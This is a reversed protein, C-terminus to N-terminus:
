KIQYTKPSDGTFKKFARNFTAKSNFGADYALSMITLHAFEPNSLQAKVEMVRYQNVFDNFNKEFIRNIIKSLFSPNTGLHAALESLTLEPNRYLKEQLMAIELKEKWEPPVVSDNTQIGNVSKESASPENNAVESVENLIPTQREITDNVQYRYFDLEFKKKQEISNAYGTIGIYYFILAFLLYYWWTDQYGIDFGLLRLGDLTITSFFYLFCAILFNRVWTFQLNDAYSLEQVIFARYKLYYRLSLLLYVMLSLFGLVQYWTDFDPDNQGDMLYYRKLILRDTVAVVVTWIIYLIGPVFHYRDNKSFIFSPNLLTKIYIFIAPGMLLTHNMPFYFMFNRCEMCEWGWYWGAFGLMWPCIYLVSMLLIFGLWNDAVREHLYAKRFLLFAYVLGHFFFILLLGSRWNFDFYM